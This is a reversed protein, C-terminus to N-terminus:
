TSFTNRLNKEIVRTYWIRHEDKKEEKLLSRFQDACKSIKTAWEIVELSSLTVLFSTYWEIPCFLSENWRRLSIALSSFIYSTIALTNWCAITNQRSFITKVAFFLVSHGNVSSALFFQSINRYLLLDRTWVM